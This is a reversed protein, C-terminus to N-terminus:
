DEMRYCCTNAKTKRALATAKKDLPKSCLHGREGNGGGCHSFIGVACNAFPPPANEHPKANEISEAATMCYAESPKAASASPTPAPTPETSTSVIPAPVASNLAATLGTPSAATTPAASNETTTAHQATPKPQDQCSICLVLAWFLGGHLSRM